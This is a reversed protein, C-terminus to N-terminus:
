YPWLLDPYCSINKKNTNDEWITINQSYLHVVIYQVEIQLEKFLLPLSRTQIDTVCDCLLALKM